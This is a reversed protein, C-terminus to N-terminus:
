GFLREAGPNWSLIIGELTESMIADRSSEVIVALRCLQDAYQKRDAIESELKETRERVKAELGENLTRFQENSLERQADNRATKRTIFVAIWTALLIAALILSIVMRRAVIYHAESRNRAQNMQDTEFQVFSEIVAHYKMQLPVTVSSMEERAVDEKV